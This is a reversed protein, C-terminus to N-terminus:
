VNIKEKIKDVFKKNLGIFRNSIRKTCLTWVFYLSIFICSFIMINEKNTYFGKKVFIMLLVLSAMSALFVIRWKISKLDYNGCNEISKLIQKNEKYEKNDYKLFPHDYEKYEFYFAYLSFLVFIILIYCM